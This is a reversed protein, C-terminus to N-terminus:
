GRSALLRSCSGLHLTRHRFVDLRFGGGAVAEGQEGVSGDDRHADVAVERIECGGHGLGVLYFRDRDVALVTERDQAV